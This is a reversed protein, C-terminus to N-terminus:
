RQYQNFFEEFQKWIDDNPDISRGRGQDEGNKGEEKRGDEKGGKDAYPNKAFPDDGKESSSRSEDYKGNESSSEQSGLTVEVEVEDYKNGNPRMVKVRVKEGARYKKLLATLDEFGTVGQGDLAVIIDKEQLGSNEATSGETFRYIFVGKPMDFAKATASDINKVQVGLYGREKDSVDERTVLTSLSSIVEKAANSPISYGMGEVATSATKAVNIGILEGKMNLLAGGSNGPNIAADTQLLNVESGEETEITRNKASIIGTTVSQGFGLANGIAVVQDGVELADSDGLVAIKLNEMTEAPIDAKKVVVVALDNKADSGKVVAPIAKETQNFNVSLSTSSTVVHNNTVILIETDNEGIIVGSGTAPVEREYSEYSGFISYGNQKYLITNTIAVVSPMANKAVQSVSGMAQGAAPAAATEVTALKPAETEAPKAESKGETEGKAAEETEEAAAEPSPDGFHIPAQKVIGAKEAAVNIGVMAGGAVIGFLVAGLIVAMFKKM